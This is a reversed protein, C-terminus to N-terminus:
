KEAVLFLWPGSGLRLTFAVEAEAAALESQYAAVRDLLGAKAAIDYTQGYAFVEPHHFGARKYLRALDQARYHKYQSVSCYKLWENPIPTCEIVELHTNWGQASVPWEQELIWQHLPTGPLVEYDQSTELGSVDRTIRHMTFDSKGSRTFWIDSPPYPWGCEWDWNTSEHVAIGGEKLVRRVEAVVTEHKGYTSPYTLVDGLLLVVDFGSDPFPLATADAHQVMVNTIGRRKRVCEARRLDDQCIDIGIGEEIQESLMLLVDGRGCGVDLVRNAQEVARRLLGARIEEYWAFDIECPEAPVVRLNLLQSM